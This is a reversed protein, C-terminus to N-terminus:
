TYIELSVILCLRNLESKALVRSVSDRPHHEVFLTAPFLLKFNSSDFQIEGYMGKADTIPAGAAARAEEEGEDDSGKEGDQDEDGDHQAAVPPANAAGGGGVIITRSLLLWHVM